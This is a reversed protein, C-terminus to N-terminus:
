AIREALAAEIDDAHSVLAERDLLFVGMQGHSFTIWTFPVRPLLECLAESSNGVEVVVVGDPTLFGTADRLFRLCDDLGDAGATLGSKPEHGYEAPLGAYEHEAVYPPNCVILDYRRAPMAAFLDSRFIEVRRELGHKQCNERALTLADDSVDALDVCCDPYHAAMALGLCGSGTGMDLAHEVVTDDLWPSFGTEILEALPSRPVLARRDCIFQLGAFWAEGVLYATPVRENIRREICDLVHERESTTLRGAGYAPPLDPPLHVAGLVLHTAEDVATAYGHGFALGTAGFRSSAYRIFDIITALEATM